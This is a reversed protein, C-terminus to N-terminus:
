GGPYRTLLDIGPLYPEGRFNAANGVTASAGNPWRLVGATVQWELPEGEHALAILGSPGEVMVKRM